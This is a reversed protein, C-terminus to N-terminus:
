CQSVYQEKSQETKGDHHLQGLFKDHKTIQHRDLTLFALCFEPCISTLDSVKPCPFVKKLLDKLLSMFGTPAAPEQLAPSAMFQSGSTSGTTRFWPWSQVMIWHLISRWHIELKMNGNGKFFVVLNKCLDTQTQPNPRQHSVASPGVGHFNPRGWRKVQLFFFICRRWWCPKCKMWWLWVLGSGKQVHPHYLCFSQAVSGTKVGLLTKDDLGLLHGETRIYRCQLAEADTESWKFM